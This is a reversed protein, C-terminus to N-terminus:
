AAEESDDHSAAEESAVDSCVEAHLAAPGAAEAAPCPEEKKPM